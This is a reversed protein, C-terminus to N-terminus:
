FAEPFDEAEVLAPGSIEQEEVGLDRCAAQRGDLPRLGALAHLDRGVPIRPHGEVGEAMGPCRPHGSHRRRRAPGPRWPASARDATPPASCECRRLRPTPDCRDAAMTQHLIRPSARALASVSILDTAPGHSGWLRAAVKQARQFRSFLRHKLPM